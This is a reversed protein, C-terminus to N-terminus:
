FLDLVVTQMGQSDGFLRHVSTQTWSSDYQAVSWVPAANTGSQMLVSNQDLSLLAAAPECGQLPLRSLVAGNEDLTWIMGAASNDKSQVLLRKSDLSRLYFGSCNAKIPLVRRIHMNPTLDVVYGKGGRELQVLLSRQDLSRAALFPFSPLVMKWSQPNVRGSYELQGVVVAGGIGAQILVNSGDVDRLQWRQTAGFANTVLTTQWKSNLIWSTADGGTHQVLLRGIDHPPPEVIVSTSETVVLDDVAGAGAFFVNSLFRDNNSVNFHDPNQAMKNWGSDACLFWPGGHTSPAITTPYANPSELPQGGNIQISFFQECPFALESPTYYRLTITLRVWEDDRVPANNLETWLESQTTFAEDYKSHWVMLHGNTGFYLATQTEHTIAPVSRLTGPKCMFDVVVTEAPHEVTSFQNTQFLKAAVGDRLQLVKQHNTVIPLAGAYSYAAAQISVNSPTPMYWARPSIQGEFSESFPLLDYGNSLGLRPSIEILLGAPEPKPEPTWNPNSPTVSLDDISGFRDIVFSSFYGDNFSPRGYAKSKQFWGSDACLFWTAAADGSQNPTLTNYANTSCLPGEGNIWIRFFQEAPFEASAYDILLTVEVWDSTSIPTHNLQTWRTTQSTFMSDYQSHRIVAHGTNDFYLATQLDQAIPPASALLRLPQCKFDVRVTSPRAPDENYHSLEEANRYENTSFYNGTRATVRLGKNTQSPNGSSPTYMLVSPLPERVHTWWGGTGSRLPGESYAEFTESFPITSTRPYYENHPCIQISQGPASLTNGLWLSICALAFATARLKSVSM